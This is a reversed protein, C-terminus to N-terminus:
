QNRAFALPIRHPLLDLGDKYFDLREVGVKGRRSNFAEVGWRGGKGWVM